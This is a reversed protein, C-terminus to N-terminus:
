SQPPVNSSPSCTNIGFLMFLPCFGVAGTLLLIAGVALAAGAMGSSLGAFLGVLVAVLGIGIRLPREIGGVNCKM